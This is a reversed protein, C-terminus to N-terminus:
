HGIQNWSQLNTYEEFKRFLEQFATAIDRGLNTGAIYVTPKSYFAMEQRIQGVPTDRRVGVTIQIYYKIGQREGQLDM